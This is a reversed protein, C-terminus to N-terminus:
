IKVRNKTESPNEGFEERYEHSFRGLHNFGWDFALKSISINKDRSTSLTKYVQQLRYRRLFTLPSTGYYQQFEAYLKSKSVGALRLLDEARIEEHAYKQIYDCVKRLYEPAQQDSLSRLLSSYNNEQSLLLAKILFNEYDESWLQLGQMSKYQSRLLLFHDINQWWMGIGQDIKLSMEPNFVVPEEVSQRLLEGLVKQMSKEPIVVQYKKCDKDIALDQLDANSLILGKDASSIYNTGNIALTQKGQIPLSISYARLNSTNILVNAGYSIKGIAMRKHPLRIGEYHFDLVNRGCTDLHHEGCISSMLSHAFEAQRSYHNLDMEQSLSLM